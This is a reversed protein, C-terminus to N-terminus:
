TRLVCFVEQVKLEIETKLTLKSLSAKHRNKYNGHLLKKKIKKYVGPARRIYRERKKKNKNSDLIFLSSLPTM